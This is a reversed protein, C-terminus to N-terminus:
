EHIGDMPEAEIQRGHRGALLAALAEHEFTTDTKQSKVMKHYRKMLKDDNEIGGSFREKYAILFLLAATNIRGFSNVFKKVKGEYIADITEKDAGNLAYVLLLYMKTVKMLSGEDINEMLDKLKTEANEFRMRNLENEALSLRVLDAMRNGRPLDEPPRPGEFDARTMVAIMRMQLYYMCHKSADSEKFLRLLMSDNTMMGSSYPITNVIMLLIGYVVLLMALLNLAPAIDLALVIISSGTLLLNMLVGGRLMMVYPTDESYGGEPLSVTGGAAGKIPIYMRKKGDETRVSWLGFVSVAMLKYGSLRGFIVHGLEHVFAHLLLAPFSLVFFFLIPAPAGPYLETNPRFIFLIILLVAMAAAFGVVQAVVMSRMEKDM